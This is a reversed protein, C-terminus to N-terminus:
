RRRRIASAIGHPDVRDVVDIHGEGLVEPHAFFVAELKAEFAPEEIDEVVRLIDGAIDAINCPNTEGASRNM